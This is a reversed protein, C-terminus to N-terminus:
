RESQSHRPGDAVFFSPNLIQHFRVASFHDHPQALLGIHTPCVPLRPPVSCSLLSTPPAPQLFPNTTSSAAQSRQLRDHQSPSHLPVPNRCRLYLFECNM